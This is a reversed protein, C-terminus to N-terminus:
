MTRGKITVLTSSDGSKEMLVKHTTCYSYIYVTQFGIYQTNNLGYFVIFTGKIFLETSMQVSQQASSGHKL